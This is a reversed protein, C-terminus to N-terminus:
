RWRMFYYYVIRWPPMESLLMRWSCGSRVVYFVVRQEYRPPRDLKALGPILPPLVQWEADTLDSPCPDRERKLRGVGAM